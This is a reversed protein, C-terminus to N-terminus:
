RYEFERGWCDFPRLCIGKSYLTGPDAFSLGSSCIGGYRCNIVTSKVVGDWTCTMDKCRILACKVVGDWM